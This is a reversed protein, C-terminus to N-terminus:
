VEGTYGLRLSARRAAEVVRPALRHAEELSLRSAPASLSLAAVVGGSAGFVPAAVCRVGLEKEENDLAYGRGRVAELERLLDPLRTLTHPTYPTLSLGEPVGLYALFVKGVGTAHLPARSGPATFLRVLKTGEVQDLYLAERGLPVALNVSEGTERALAEMEPRVAQSLSRKPYAQGVAFAKPGVRYVGGEEEVFGAQALARLLRYLTSKALGVREALPGLPSEGAQALAELVRLGRELTKVAQPPKERPRAM